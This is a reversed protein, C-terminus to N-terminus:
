KLYQTKTFYITRFPKVPSPFNIFSSKVKRVHNMFIDVKRVYWSVVGRTRSTVSKRVQSGETQSITEPAVFMKQDNQNKQDKERNEM